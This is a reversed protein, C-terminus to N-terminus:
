EFVVYRQAGVGGGESNSTRAVTYNKPMQRHLSVFWDCQDSLIKGLYATEQVKFKKSSKYFPGQLM